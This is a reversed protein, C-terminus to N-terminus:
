FGPNIQQILKADRPNILFALNIRILKFFVKRLVEMVPMKRLNTGM